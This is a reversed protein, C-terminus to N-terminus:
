AFAATIEAVMGSEALEQGLKIANLIATEGSSGHSIICIGDVGQDIMCDVAHRRYQRRQGLAADVGRGFGQRDLVGLTANPDVRYRRADDFRRHVGLFGMLRQAAQVRDAVHAFDVVDHLRDEVEVPCIEDSALDQMDVTALASAM